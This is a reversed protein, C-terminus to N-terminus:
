DANSPKHVTKLRTSRALDLSTCPPVAPGRLPRFRLPGRLLGSAAAAVVGSPESAILKTSTVSGRVGIVPGDKPSETRVTRSGGAENM